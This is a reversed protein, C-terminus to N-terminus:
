IYIKLLSDQLTGEFDLLWDNYLRFLLLSSSILLRIFSKGELPSSAHVDLFESAYLVENGGHFYRANAIKTFGENKYEHISGDAANILSGLLFFVIVWFGLGLNEMKMLREEERDRERGRRTETVAKQFFIFM